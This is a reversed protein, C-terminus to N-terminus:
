ENGKSQFDCDVMFIGQSFGQCNFSSSEIHQMSLTHDATLITIKLHVM